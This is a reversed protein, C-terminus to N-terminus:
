QNERLERIADSSSLDSLAKAAELHDACIWHLGKPHGPGKIPEFNAFRVQGFKLDSESRHNRGCVSCLPPKM